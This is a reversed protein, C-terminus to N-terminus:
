KTSGTVPFTPVVPFKIPLTTGSLLALGSVALFLMLVIAIIWFVVSHFSHPLEVQVDHEDHIRRHNFWQNPHITANM